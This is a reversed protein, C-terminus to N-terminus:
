APAHGVKGFADNEDGAGGGSDPRRRRRADGIVPRALQDQDVGVLYPQAIEGEGQGALPLQDDAVDGVFAQPVLGVEGAEGV